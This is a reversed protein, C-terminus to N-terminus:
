LKQPLTGDDTQNRCPHQFQQTFTAGRHSEETLYRMQQPANALPTSAKMTAKELENTVAIRNEPTLSVLECKVM